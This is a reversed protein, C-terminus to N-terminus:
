RAPVPEPSVEHRDIISIASPTWLIAHEEGDKMRRVYGIRSTFEVLAPLMAKENGNWFNNSLSIVAERIPQGSYTEEIRRIIKEVGEFDPDGFDLLRDAYEPSLKVIKAVMSKTLTFDETAMEGAIEVKMIHGGDVSGARLAYHRATEDSDTFYLGPGQEDNGTGVFDLHFADIDAASGHFWRKTM